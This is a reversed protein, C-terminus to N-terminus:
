INKNKIYSEKFEEALIDMYVDDYYKGNLYYSKRRRGFEKFGVKKYCAIARDNFSKVTLMINNLNLYNFGYDVLLGVAEKGYGKGRNEEEGILIGLTATRHIAIFDELGCNGIIEDNESNIIAFQENGLRLIRDLFEKENEVNIIKSSAGIGDTVKFDNFWKTYKEIDDMCMPSLYIKEGVLKQFYKM